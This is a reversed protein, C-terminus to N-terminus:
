QEYEVKTKGENWVRLRGLQDYGYREPTIRVRGVEWHPEHGTVHDTRDTIAVRQAGGGPAPIDYVYEPVPYVGVQDFSLRSM